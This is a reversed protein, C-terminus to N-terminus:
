NEGPTMKKYTNVLKTTGDELYEYVNENNLGFDITTSETKTTQQAMKQQEAARKKMEKDRFDKERAKAMERSQRIKMQQKEREQRKRTIDSATPAKIQKPEEALLHRLTKM